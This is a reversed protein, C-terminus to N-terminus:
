MSMIQVQSFLPSTALAKMQLSVTSNIEQNTLFFYICVYCNNCRPPIPM